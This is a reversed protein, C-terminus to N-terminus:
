SVSRGEEFGVVKRDAHRLCAMGAPRCIFATKRWVITQATMTLDSDIKKASLQEM